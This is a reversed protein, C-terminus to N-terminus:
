EPLVNGTLKLIVKRTKGSDATRYRVTIKKSVYGKQGKPYFKVKIVGSKGPLVPEPTYKPKTCGCAASASVVTLPTEGSNVFVFEHSVPEHNRSITGFDFEKTEFSMADNDRAFLGASSLILSILLVLIRNM